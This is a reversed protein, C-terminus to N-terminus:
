GNAQLECWSSITEMPGGLFVVVENPVSGQFFGGFWRLNEVIIKIKFYTYERGCIQMM